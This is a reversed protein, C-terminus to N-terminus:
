QNIPAQPGRRKVPERGHRMYRSYRREDRTGYHRNRSIYYEGVSRLAIYEVVKRWHTRDIEHRGAQKNIVRIYSSFSVRILMARNEKPSLMNVVSGSSSKTHRSTFPKRKSRMLLVLHCLKRRCLYDLLIKERVFSEVHLSVNEEGGNNKDGSHETRACSVEDGHM